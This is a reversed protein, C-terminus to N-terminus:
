FKGLKQQEKYERQIESTLEKILKATQKRLENVSSSNSPLRYISEKNEKLAQELQFHHASKNRM